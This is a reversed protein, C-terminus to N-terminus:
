NVVFLCLIHCLLSAVMVLILLQMDRHAHGLGLIHIYLDKSLMPVYKSCTTWRYPLNTRNAHLAKQVEPLNFYFTREATM